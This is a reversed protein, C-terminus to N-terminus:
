IDYQVGSNCPEHVPYIDYQAGEVKMKEVKQMVQWSCGEFMCHLASAM